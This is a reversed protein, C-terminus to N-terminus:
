VTIITTRGSPETKKKSIDWLDGADMLLDNKTFVQKGILENIKKLHVNQFRVDANALRKKGLGDIIEIARTTTGLNIVKM